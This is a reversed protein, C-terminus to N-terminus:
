VAQVGLEETEEWREGRLWGWLTPNHKEGRIKVGFSLGGGLNKSGEGGAGLNGTSGKGRQTIWEGLTREL